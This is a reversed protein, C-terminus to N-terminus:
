TICTPRVQRVVPGALVELDELGELDELVLRGELLDVEAAEAVKEGQIGLCQSHRAVLRIAPVERARVKEMHITIQISLPAEETVVM